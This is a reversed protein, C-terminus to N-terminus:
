KAPLPPSNQELTGDPVRVQVVVLFGTQGVPAITALWRDAFGPVPDRYDWVTVPQIKRLALQNCPDSADGFAQRLTSPAPERLVHEQRDMLGEHVLFTFDASPLPENRDRDRPGLLSTLHDGDPDRLMVEGFVSDAQIIAVFAGAWAGESLLPASIGFKIKGDEESRFARSVYAQSPCHQAVHSAQKFYDRFSFNPPVHSGPRQTAYARSAGQADLVLLSDFPQLHRALALPALDGDPDNHVLTAVEPDRVAREVQRAYEALQFLAAGAQASATFANASALRQLREARASSLSRALVLVWGALVAAGMLALAPVPHRRGWRLVRGLPTYRRARIPRHEFVRELDDALEAATAYRANARKLAHLCITELDRSVEPALRRPPVPEELAVRRLVDEVTAGTHPPRGTLLEYLMAGLSYVDAAPTLEGQDLFAQEPAVYSPCGLAGTGRTWGDQSAAKAIGLDSIYPSGREDFLINEPKLDRHLVRLPHQHLAHVARAIAAMLTAARKPPRFEALRERLTGGRMVPMTFYPHGDVIGADLIRVVNPLELKGLLASERRFRESDADDCLEYRLMKLAVERELQPQYALYVVGFGGRGLVERIEYGAISPLGPPASRGASFLCRPCLGV